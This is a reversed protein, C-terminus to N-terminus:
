LTFGAEVADRRFMKVTDLSFGELSAGQFKIFKEILDPTATIIDCGAQEAQYINLVERPSAWLLDTSEGSPSSRCISRAEMMLPVPDRGTDAIRGAFVSVINRNSHNQLVATVARVQELTFIATVNLAINSRSLESILGVCSVGETNTVPIKVHVRPSWSAIETAQRKMEDLDDAFVEFSIPKDVIKSLLDKCFKAYHTVGSKKMLTPNTTFGRILPNQSLRIMSDYDAGDAFIKLNKVAPTSYKSDTMKVSTSMELFYTM